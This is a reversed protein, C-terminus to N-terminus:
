RADKKYAAVRVAVNAKINNFSTLSWDRAMPNTLLYVIGYEM